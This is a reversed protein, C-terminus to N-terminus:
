STTPSSTVTCSITTTRRRSGLAASALVDLIETWDRPQATLWKTLTSGDVLEMAIWVSKSRGGGLDTRGVDHVTVVNPHSLKALAQAERLLRTTGATGSGRLGGHLLKVAVKRDLEPDFATYVQGMAGAGLRDLVVYCGLIDGRSLGAAPDRPVVADVDTITEDSGGLASM